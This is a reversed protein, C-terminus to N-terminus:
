AVTKRAANNNKSTTAKGSSAPKDNDSEPKALGSVTESPDPVMRRLQLTTTYGNFGLSHKINLLLYYGSLFIDKSEEVMVGTNPRYIDIKILYMGAKIKEDFFWFPDGLINLTILSSHYRALANLAKENGTMLTYGGLTDGPELAFNESNQIKTENKTKQLQASQLKQKTELIKTMNEQQKKIIDQKESKKKSSKLAKELKEYQKKFETTDKLLKTIESDLDNQQARLGPTRIDGRLLEFTKDEEINFSKVTSAQHRPRYVRFFGQDELNTPPDPYYFYLKNDSPRIAYRYLVSRDEAIEWTANKDPCNTLDILSKGAALDKEGSDKIVFFNNPGGPDSPEGGKEFTKMAFRKPPIQDMIESLITGLTARPGASWNSVPEDLFQYDITGAIPETSSGDPLFWINRPLESGIDTKEDDFPGIVGGDEGSNTPDKVADTPDYFYKNFKEISKKVNEDDQNSDLAPNKGTENEVFINRVVRVLKLASYPGCRLIAFERELQIKNMLLDFPSTAEVKYTAGDDKISRSLKTIIGKIWPTEGVVFDEKRDKFSNWDKYLDASYESNTNIYPNGYGFKIRISELNGANFFFKNIATKYSDTEKSAGVETQNRQFEGSDDYYPCQLAFTILRELNGWNRDFMTISYNKVGGQDELDFSTVINNYYRESNSIKQTTIDVWYEYKKGSAIRSQGKAQLPSSNIKNPEVGTYVEEKDIYLNTQTGYFDDYIPFTGDQSFLDDYIPTPIKLQVRIWFSLPQQHKFFDQETYFTAMGQSTAM